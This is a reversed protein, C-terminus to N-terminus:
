SPDRALAPSQARLTLLGARYLTALSASLDFAPLDALTRTVAAELSDAVACAALFAATAADVDLMAVRQAQVTVVAAEPAGTLAISGLSVGADPQHARWISVVPWPSRVLRAGAALGARIQTPPLALLRGLAEADPVDPAADPAYHAWHVHWELTAVDALYPVSGALPSRAIVAPLAEGYHHLNPSRSPQALLTDRVLADFCDEGVLARCVPYAGVLANRLIAWRANRYVAIGRAEDTSDLATLQGVLHAQWDHLRM